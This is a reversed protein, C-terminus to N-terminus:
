LLVPAKIIPLGLTPRKKCQDSIIHPELKVLLPLVRQSCINLVSQRRLDKTVKFM